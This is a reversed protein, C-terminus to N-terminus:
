GGQTFFKFIIAQMFSSQFTHARKLLPQPAPTLIKQANRDMVNKIRRINKSFSGYMATHRKENEM